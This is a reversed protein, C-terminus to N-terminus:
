TVNIADNDYVKLRIESRPKGAALIHHCITTLYAKEIRHQPFSKEFDDHTHTLKLM